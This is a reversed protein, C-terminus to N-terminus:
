SKGGKAAHLAPKNNLVFHNIWRAWLGNLLVQRHAPKARTLHADITAQAMKLRQEFPLTHTTNIM